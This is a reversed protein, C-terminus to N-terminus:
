VGQGMKIPCLSGSAHRNEAKEQEPSSNLEPNKRCKKERMIGKLGDPGQCHSWGTRLVKCPGQSTLINDGGGNDM